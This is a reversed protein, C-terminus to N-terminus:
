RESPYIEGTSSVWKETEMLSDFCKELILIRQPYDFRRYVEKRVGDLVMVTTASPVDSIAGDYRDDLGMFGVAKAQTKFNELTAKSVTTTYNGIMPIFRIGELEVFGDTYITMKYTPCTGFCPSRDISAFFTRGEITDELQAEEIVVTNEEAPAEVVTDKIDADSDADKTSKCSAFLILGFTCLLALAKLNKM